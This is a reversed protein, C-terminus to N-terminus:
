GAAWVSFELLARHLGVEPEYLNQGSIQVNQFTAAAMATLVALALAHRAAPTAAYADVQVRANQVDSAGSLSNNTPSIVIQWVIYPAVVGQVAIDQHAGGSACPALVSQLREELASM